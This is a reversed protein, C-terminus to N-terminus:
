IYNHQSTKHERPRHRPPPRWVLLGELAFKSAAYYGSGAFARAGAVSSFNAIFGRQRRRMAPAAKLAEPSTLDVQLVTLREPTQAQLPALAAPDRSTAFM